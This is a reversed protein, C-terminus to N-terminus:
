PTVVHATAATGLNARSRPTEDRCLSRLWLICGSWLGLPLLLVIQGTPTGYPAVLESAMVRLYGILLAAIVVLRRMSHRYVARARDIRERAALEDRASRALADVTSHLRGAGAVGSAVLSMAAVATDGLPHALDDGLWHLAEETRFGRRRHVLYRELNDAIAAPPRMAVHELAEDLGMASGRLTDRLDDLWKSIAGVRVREEDAVRDSMLPEWMLVGGGTVLALMPWRTAAVVVMAAVVAGIRRVESASPRATHATTPHIRSTPVTAPRFAAPGTVARGFALLAAAVLLMVGLGVALPPVVRTM